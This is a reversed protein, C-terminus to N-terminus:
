VEPTSKGRSAPPSTHLLQPRRGTACSVICEADLPSQDHQWSHKKGVCGGSEGALAGASATAGLGVAPELLPELPTVPNLIRILRGKGKPAGCWDAACLECGAAKGVPMREARQVRMTVGAEM